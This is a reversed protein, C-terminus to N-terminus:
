VNRDTTRDVTRDTRVTRDAPWNEDGPSALYGGIVSAAGGLLLMLFTAFATGSAASRAREERVTETAGERMQPAAQRQDQPLLSLRGERTNLAAGTLASLSTGLLVLVLLMALSWTVLGHLAGDMHRVVGALHAAVWGGIFLAILTSIIWWIAAGTGVAEASVDSRPGAYNLGIAAGLLTLMVQIIVAIFTGAFIAGWSLRRLAGPYAGAEGTWGAPVDVRDVM